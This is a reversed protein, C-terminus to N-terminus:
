DKGGNGSDHDSGHDEDDGSGQDDNPGQGADDSGQDDDPEQGSDDSGQDDGPGQGADDSGQDDNDPGQGADDSGQDDNGPGQEDDPGQDDDPGQEDDDPEEEPDDPLEEDDDPAGNQEQNEEGDEPPVEPTELRDRTREMLKLMTQVMDPDGDCTADQLCDRLREMERTQDLLATGLAAQLQTRAPEDLQTMAQLALQLHAEYHEGVEPPIVDDQETLRQVENIRTQMMVMAQEVIMEPDQIRQMEMTELQLKLPYLIAGPLSGQAANVTGVTGGVMLSAVLFLKIMTFMPAERWQFTLLAKLRAKWEKRRPEPTLSVAQAAFEQAEALFAARGAAMFAPDPAPVPKLTDLASQLEPALMELPEMENHEMM